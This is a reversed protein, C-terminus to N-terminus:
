DDNNDDYKFCWLWQWRWYEPSNSRPVAWPAQCQKARAWWLALGGEIVPSWWSPCSPWSPGSPWSPWSWWTLSSSTQLSCWPRKTHYTKISVLIIFEYRLLSQAKMIMMMMNVIKMTIMRIWLQSLSQKCQADQLEAFVMMKDAMFGPRLCQWWWWKHKREIPILAGNDDHILHKEKKWHPDWFRSLQWAYIFHGTWFPEFSDPSPGSHQWNRPKGDHDNGWWYPLTNAMLMSMPAPANSQFFCQNLCDRTQFPLLAVHLHFNPIHFNFFFILFQFKICIWFKFNHLHFNSKHLKLNKSNSISLYHCFKLELCFDISVQNRNSEPLLLLPSFPLPSQFYRGGSFSSIIVIDCSVIFLFVNEFLNSFCKSSRTLICFIARVPHGICHCIHLSNNRTSFSDFDVEFRSDTFINRWLKTFYILISLVYFFPCILFSM